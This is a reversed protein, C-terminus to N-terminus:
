IDFFCRFTKEEWEGDDIVSGISGLADEEWWGRMREGTPRAPVGAAPAMAV